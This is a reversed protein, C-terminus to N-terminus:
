MAEARDLIERAGASLLRQTLEAGALSPEEARGELRDRLWESGDPLGVFAEITLAEGDFSSHADFPPEPSMHTSCSIPLSTVM